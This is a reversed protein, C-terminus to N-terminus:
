PARDQQYTASHDLWRNYWFFAHDLPRGEDIFKTVEIYELKWDEGRGRGVRSRPPSRRANV